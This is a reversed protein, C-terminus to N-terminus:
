WPVHWRLHSTQPHTSRSGVKQPITAARAARGQAQLMLHHLPRQSIRAKTNTMNYRLRSLHPPPRSVWVRSLAFNRSSPSCTRSHTCGAFCPQPTQDSALQKALRLWCWFQIGIGSTRIWGGGWVGWVPIHVTTYKRKRPHALGCRRGWHEEGHRSPPFSCFQAGVLFPRLAYLKGSLGAGPPLSRTAM